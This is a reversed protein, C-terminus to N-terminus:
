AEKAAKAEEIAALEAETPPPDEVAILITEPNGLFMSTISDVGTWLKVKAAEEAM